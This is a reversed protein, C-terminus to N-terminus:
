GGEELLRAANRARDESGYSEVANDLAWGVLGDRELRYWYHRDGDLRAVSTDIAAIAAVEGRRLHGAIPAGASPETRLRLYPVTVVAWTPRLAVVPTPPLDIGTEEAGRSCASFSLVVLAALAVLRRLRVADPTPQGATAPRALQLTTFRRAM